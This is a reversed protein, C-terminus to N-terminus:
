GPPWAMRRGGLVHLHIHFIEQGGAENCNVVCRFGDEAVGELEAVKRAALLLRGMLEADGPEIDTVAPVHKRPVILVHSPAAPHITRFAYVWEDSYVESSPIQGAVIKCFLCDEVM